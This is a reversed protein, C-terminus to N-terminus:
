RLTKVAVQNNQYSNTLRWANRFWGNSLLKATNSDFVEHGYEDDLPAATSNQQMYPYFQLKNSKFRGGYSIVRPSALMNVEHFQNCTPFAMTQWEAMPVCNDNDDDIAVEVHSEINEGIIRGDQKSEPKFSQDWLAGSALQLLPSQLFVVRKMSSRSQKITRLFKNNHDYVHREQSRERIRRTSFMNSVSRGMSDFHLHSFLPLTMTFLYFGSGLLFVSELSDRKRKRKVMNVPPHAHDKAYHM